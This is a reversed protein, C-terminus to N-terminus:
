GPGPCGFDLFAAPEGVSETMTDVPAGGEQSTSRGQVGGRSVRPLSTSPRERCEDGPKELLRPEISNGDTARRTEWKELAVRRVSDFEALKSV